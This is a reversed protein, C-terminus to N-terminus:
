SFKYYKIFIFINPHYNFDEALNLVTLTPSLVVALPAHLLAALELPGLNISACLNPSPDASTKASFTINSFNWTHISDYKRIELTAEAVAQEVLERHGGLFEVRRM